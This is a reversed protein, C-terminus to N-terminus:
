TRKAVNAVSTILSSTDVNGGGHKELAIYQALVDKTLQLDLGHKKAQQVCYTLDKIMWRVAFGFDFEGRVMTKGRNVMQWSQAAGGGIADIVKDCDLNHEGAFVLGESLGQLVGAICIQNVMKTLQGDGCDGIHVHKTAYCAFVPVALQYHAQKGGVMITLKGQEAGSQGGSVPADIFGVQHKTAQENMELALSQSTTTHDILLSGRRMHALVGKEGLAIARVDDDNGVCMCVIDKDRVAQAVTDAQRGSHTKVWKEATLATRNWVDVIFGHRALHGAMPFGMVGLGLFAVKKM